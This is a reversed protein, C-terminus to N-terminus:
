SCKKVGIVLQDSSEHGELLQIPRNIGVAIRVILKGFLLM